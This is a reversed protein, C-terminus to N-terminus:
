FCSAEPVFAAFTGGEVSVAGVVTESDGAIADVVISVFAGDTVSVLKATASV